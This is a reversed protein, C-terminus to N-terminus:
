DHALMKEVSNGCVPCPDSLKHCEEADHISLTEPDVERSADEPISVRNRCLQCVAVNRYLTMPRLVEDLASCTRCYMTEVHCEHPATFHGVWGCNGCVRESVRGEPGTGYAASRPFVGGCMRGRLVPIGREHSDNLVRRYRDAKVVKRVAKSVEGVMEEDNSFLGRFVEVEAFTTLPSLPLRLPGVRESFTM